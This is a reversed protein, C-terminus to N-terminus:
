VDESGLNEQYSVEDDSESESGSFNDVEDGSEITGPGIDGTEPPQINLPGAQFLETDGELQQVMIVKM